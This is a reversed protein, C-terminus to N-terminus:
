RVRYQLAVSTACLRWLHIRYLGTRIFVTADLTLTSYALDENDLAVDGELLRALLAVFLDVAHGTEGGRAPM